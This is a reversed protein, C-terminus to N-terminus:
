GGISKKEIRMIISAMLIALIGALLKSIIVPNVAKSSVSAIYGLQGGFTYAGSVAFAANLVKGKNNMKDYIGLMPICNALSAFIGLISYKDIKFKEEIKLLYKDLIKSIFHLMSYAGSLIIGINVVLIAGEELPIIGKILEVGFIFDIISIMLGITSIIIILRGLINFVRITKEQVKQLGLILIISFIVIPLLNLLILKLSIGMMLGGVFVGIPITIIGALVGKAFYSFDEKSILGVAVPITFSITAGLMSSLILGNLEGLSSTLAIEVCTNYGGLDPALISGLFVSPDINIMKGLPYLLPSIGKALLPSLSYIGIISLALSGIAKFGEDFKDGMGLRNKFIRDFAGIISFVIMVKIM